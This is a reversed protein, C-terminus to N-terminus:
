HIFGMSRLGGLPRLRWQLRSDDFRRDDFRVAVEHGRQRASELHQGGKAMAIAHEAILFEALAAAQSFGRHRPERV